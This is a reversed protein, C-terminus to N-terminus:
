SFPGQLTYRLDPLSLAFPQPGEMVLARGLLAESTVSDFVFGDIALAQRVRRVGDFPNVVAQEEAWTAQREHIRDVAWISWDDAVLVFDHGPAASVACLRSSSTRRILSRSATDIVYGQGTAIVLVTRGNDSPFPAAANFGAEGAGGFVGVWEVGEGDEFRVWTNTNTVFFAREDISGSIPLEQLIEVNM